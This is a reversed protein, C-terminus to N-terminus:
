IRVANRRQLNCLIWSLALVSLLLILTVTCLVTPFIWGPTLKSTETGPSAQCSKQEVKLEHREMVGDQSIALIVVTDTRAVIDADLVTNTAAVTALHHFMQDSDVAAVLYLVGEKGTTVDEEVEWILTCGFQKIDWLNHSPTSPPSPTSPDRGTQSLCAVRCGPSCLVPASCINLWAPTQLLRRCVTRCHSCEASSCEPWETLCGAECEALRVEASLVDELSVQSVEASENSPLIMVQSFVMLPSEGEVETETLCHGVLFFLLFM